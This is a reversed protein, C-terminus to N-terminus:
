DNSYPYDTSCERFYPGVLQTWNNGSGWLGIIYKESGEKASGTLITAPPIPPAPSGYTKGSLSTFQISRVSPYGERDMTWGQMSVLLDQEMNVRTHNGIQQAYDRNLRERSGFQDFSVKFGQLGVDTIVDMNAFYKVHEMEDGFHPMGSGAFGCADGKGLDQYGFVPTNRRIKNYNDRVQKDLVFVATAATNFLRNREDILKAKLEHSQDILESVRLITPLKLDRRSRQYQAALTKSDVVNLLMGNLEDAIAQNKNVMESVDTFGDGLIKLDSCEFELTAPNTKLSTLWDEIAAQVTAPNTLKGANLNGGMSKADISCTIEQNVESRLHNLQTHFDVESVFINTNVDLIAKIKTSEEKSRSSFKAYLVVEGGNSIETIVKNGLNKYITERDAKDKSYAAVRESLVADRFTVRETISRQYWFVFVSMEESDLVDSMDVSVDVTTAGTDVNVTSKVGFTSRIKKYDFEVLYHTESSGASVLKTFTKYADFTTERKLSDYGKGLDSPLLGYNLLDDAELVSESGNDTNM